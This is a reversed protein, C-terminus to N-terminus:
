SMKRNNLFRVKAEIDSVNDDNAMNKPGSNESEDAGTADFDDQSQTSTSSMEVM